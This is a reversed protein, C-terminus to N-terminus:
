LSKHSNFILLYYKIINNKKQVKQTKKSINIANFTLRKKLAEIFSSKLSKNNCLTM